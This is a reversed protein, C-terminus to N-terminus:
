FNAFCMAWPGWGFSFGFEMETTDRRGWRRSLLALPPDKAPDADRSAGRGTFKKLSKLILHVSNIPIDTFELM